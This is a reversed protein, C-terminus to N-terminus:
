ICVASPVRGRSSLVQDDTVNRRPSRTPQRENQQRDDRCVSGAPLAEAGSAARQDHAKERTRERHTTSTSNLPAQQQPPAERAERALRLATEIATAAETQRRILDAQQNMMELRQREIEKQKLFVNQSITEHNSRVNNMEVQMTAMLNRMAEADMEGEGLDVRPERVTVEPPNQPDDSPLGGKRNGGKAM